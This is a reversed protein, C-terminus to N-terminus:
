EERTITILLRRSNDDEVANKIKSQRGIEDLSGDVKWKTGTVMGAKEWMEALTGLIM